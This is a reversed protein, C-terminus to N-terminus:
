VIMNYHYFSHFMPFNKKSINAVNGDLLFFSMEEDLRDHSYM